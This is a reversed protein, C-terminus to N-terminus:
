EARVEDKDPEVLGFELKKEIAEPDDPPTKAALAIKWQFTAELKRGVKWYADGLHDNITPDNPMLSVARELHKVAEEYNGLRYYAWGLSDVIFGSRPQLEVAKRIMEMGEELNMGQDIWSYGLYNLVEAQDPSLEISRHFNPEAKEWEKLREYAIGRRFFLNWHFPEIRDLQAVAQDYVEAAERYRKERSFITGLATYGSLDSPDEEILVKLTSIADEVQELRALNSAKELLSIRFFPSDENEGIMTYFKNSREYDGQRLYLEALALKIVDSEPELYRAMRLYTKSISNDDNRDVATAINYFLEAVGASPSGILPGLVNEAELQARLKTFPAHGPLLRMGYDLVERAREMDGNRSRNRVMAEISRIYTETLVAIVARNDIVAQYMEAALDSNGEIDAILGSHYSRMVNIWEPGDLIDLRERADDFRRDGALSWARMIERVTKDLDIGAVDKVANEAKSWSRKRLEISANLFAILNRSGGPQELDRAVKAAEEIQGNAVLAVVLDQLLREDDPDLSVARQLFKVATHDDQDSIAVRSALFSGSLGSQEITEDIETKAFGASSAFVFALSITTVKAFKLATKIM